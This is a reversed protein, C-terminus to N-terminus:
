KKNIFHFNYYTHMERNKRSYSHFIVTTLGIHSTLRYYEPPTLHESKSYLTLLHILIFDINGSLINLQVKCIKTYEGKGPTAQIQIFQSWNSHNCNACETYSIKVCGGM